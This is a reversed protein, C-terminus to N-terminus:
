TELALFREGSASETDLKAYHIHATVFYMIQIYVIRILRPERWLHSIEWVVNNRTIRELVIGLSSLEVLLITTM